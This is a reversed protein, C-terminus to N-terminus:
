CGVLTNKEESCQLDRSSCRTHGSSVDCLITLGDNNKKELRLICTEDLLFLNQTKKKSLKSPCM